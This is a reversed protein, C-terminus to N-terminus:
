DKIKGLPDVLARTNSKKLAEYSLIKKAKVAIM